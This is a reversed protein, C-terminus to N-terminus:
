SDSLGDGRAADGNDGKMPDQSQECRPVGRHACRRRDRNRGEARDGARRRRLPFRESAQTQDADGGSMHPMRCTKVIHALVFLLPERRASM